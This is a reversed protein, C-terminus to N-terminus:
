KKYHFNENGSEIMQNIASLAQDPNRKMFGVVKTAYKNYKQDLSGEGSLYGKGFDSNILTEKMSDDLDDLSGSPPLQFNYADIKGPAQAEQMGENNRFNATITEKTVPNYPSPKSKTPDGDPDVEVGDEGYVMKGGFAMRLRDVNGGMGYKRGYEM